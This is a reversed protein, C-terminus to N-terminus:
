GVRGSKRGTRRWGYSAIGIIGTAMLLLSPPLPVADLVLNDFGTQAQSSSLRIELPSGAFGSVGSNFTLTFTEFSGEPGTGSISGLLYSGAWMAVTYITDPIPTAGYGIPHGVQGTLTYQTNDTLTAGLIQFFTATGNPPSAPSLWGIQDGEPAASPNWFGLPANNINWVGGGTGTLTWGPPAATTYQSIPPDEFGPNNITILSADARSHWGLFALAVLLITLKRYM